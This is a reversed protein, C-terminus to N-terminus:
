RPNAFDQVWYHGYSSDKDYAHGFGLHRYRGMLTRCHGPSALWGVVVRSVDGYGAAINEGWASWAYGEASIREGPGTGNPADHDFWDKRAMKRAYKKAARNLRKNRRVPPVAPMLKKGCKQPVARAVNVLRLMLKVSKRRTTPISARALGVAPTAHGHGARAEIPATASAPVGSLLAALLCGLVLAIALVPTGAPRPSRSM